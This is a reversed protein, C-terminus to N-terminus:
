YSFATGLTFSNYSYNYTAGDEVVSNSRQTVGHYSLFLNLWEVILQQKLTVAFDLGQEWHPDDFSYVQSNDQRSPRSIYNRKQWSVGASGQPAFGGLKFGARFTYLVRFSNQYYNYYGELPLGAASDYYNQNSGRLRHAYDFELQHYESVMFPIEVSLDVYQDHRIETGFTGDIQIVPMETYPVDKLRLEVNTLLPVPAWTLEQRLWLEGVNCSKMETDPPLAQQLDQSLESDALQDGEATLPLYYPYRRSYGKYGLSTRMPFGLRYDARVEGWGGADNYNYLGTNLTENAASQTKETRGFAKLKVQWVKSLDYNLGLVYYLDLRQNFLFAEDEMNLINNAGVYEVEFVPTLWLGPLETMGLNPAVYLYLNEGSSISDPNVTNGATDITASSYRPRYSVTNFAASADAVPFFLVKAPALAPLGALLAVILTGPLTRFRRNM